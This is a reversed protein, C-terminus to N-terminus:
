LLQCNVPQTSKRIILENSSVIQNEVNENKIKKVLLDIAIKGMKMKDIKITSLAPEVYQDLIIDDIGIISMDEPIKYKSDKLCRMAGIAYIDAACIIATPAQNYSLINKMCLYSSDEDFADLQIWNIPLSIRNEEIAKKFGSFTQNGYHPILSTGIFAIAKHGINILYNTATYAAEFYDASVSLIDNSVNHSDVIIFPIDMTNFKNIIQTDIDGYLIIGDVDRYNVVNPLIIENTKNNYELSSFILNYGLAECEHLIINNLESYFFHEMPSVNKKFLIGINNTKNFLLRRSNPNPYYNLKKVINMVRTRTHESVGKRNNLVISVASPSVGAMKAIEKITLKAM